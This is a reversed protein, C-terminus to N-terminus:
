LSITLLYNSPYAYQVIWTRATRTLRCSPFSDYRTSCLTGFSPREKSLGFSTINAALFWAPRIHGILITEGIM